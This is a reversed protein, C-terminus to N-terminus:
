AAERHVDPGEDDQVLLYGALRGEARARRRQCAHYRLGLREAVSGLREGELRTSGILRADVDSIVGDHVAERLPDGPIGGGNVAKVEIDEVPLERGLQAAARQVKRKAAWWLRPGIADRELDIDRVAELFGTVAESELDRSDAGPGGACRRVIGRLGPVMMWLAALQWDARERRANVLLERWVADKERLDVARDLMGERIETFPRDFTMSLADFRAEIEDLVHMRQLCSM